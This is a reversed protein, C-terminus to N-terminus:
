FDRKSKAIWFSDITHATCVYLNLQINGRGADIYIIYKHLHPIEKHINYCLRFIHQSQM